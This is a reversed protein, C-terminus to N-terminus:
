ANKNGAMASKSHTVNSQAMQKAAPKPKAEAPKDNAAFSALPLTLLATSVMPVLWKYMTNEESALILLSFLESLSDM